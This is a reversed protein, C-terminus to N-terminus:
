ELSGLTLRKARVSRGSMGITRFPLAYSFCQLSGTARLLCTAGAHSLAWSELVQLLEFVPLVATSDRNAAVHSQGDATM